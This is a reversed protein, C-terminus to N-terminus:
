APRLPEPQVKVSPRARYVNSGGAGPADRLGVRHASRTTDSTRQSRARYASALWGPLSCTGVSCSLPYDTPLQVSNQGTSRSDSRAPSRALPLEDLGCFGGASHPHGFDTEREACGRVHAGLQPAAALIGSSGKGERKGHKYISLKATSTEGSAWLAGSRSANAM